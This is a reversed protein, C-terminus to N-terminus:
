QIQWEVGSVTLLFGVDIVAEGDMMWLYNQGTAGNRWLIDSKGDGNFDGTSALRWNLPVTLIYGSGVIYKGNVLWLYNQGTTAHRWLIDSKGDGNFDGTGALRWNLDPVTLLYGSDVIYKGNMLWLYNQGTVAHRWLIDSKGDGNYDGTGALRWTAVSVTLLYGSDIISKGNMLWLYNQGTTAHRWLIDSKGDGNFDGTGTLRWNLDVTLLYGSDVIYKGNMLWLYNQGTVAHRWLIDSKGDGNFDGTGTLRWNLDVTLLYGSDVIYKGNMLWLYNQGTTAYRWLIDSKGDGTFDSDFSTREITVTITEEATLIGDSVTFIVEYVGADGLGPTAQFAGTSGDLSMWAPMGEATYTLVTAPDPDSATLTFELLGGEETTKDGIPDFVPPRIGVLVTVTATDTGGQGDDVTYTFSDVGNWDPMPTYTVQNRVIVVTGLGQIVETVTLLDNEPDSDNALVDIDVPTDKNTSSVDNVAVPADNVPTVTITVTATNSDASGDNAKYTFSDSTTESGDHVYTFSGNANLTLTGHAPNTVKAATLPNGEADTDNGLVGPAVQNLTGGEAVPYGDNVAVPADNVPTVTITVTATNSDASGDNAKYTFSDSTTESGDHVYTFSGNANLTLTGHAPNTVKAATLPNGEADTDNGLVGPAVQNLTGGEAVPYGDNVAVPADNVPTVTITVTATNSDASGDNAKYTFSDSTTESGDHVYTFSGNANLTLTGHAPDTVKAATLPNGEADTDNGLVGPAVQNLTGGEAVPYGDNVAVPADNVPTVTITVTAMNSDASGDNAKYTFSDSATESGDHVYTFSGNANLTLTGHNPDTVKAATLPNGEADTDNGLVGPAVQNLTGGEAVPYGDNVAVPADNVPTVTITVTAMNSDASGDNAKYTFSDSTTESGDHVYTFSGNANLTLTGHAPDTVKAATLPNGEADTDNGLVGPAVQNLTGGEAVPYGDNVAVPADNVPTVTITVTAMNSDASGDNAKYTFSDSATESGDHVYTFSGNANLTLTGHTPGTVKVATLPDGEADTDNGLVGPAVQNLTGGEAVPYGDNVAVPANNVPTVTITVTATNSDASGDNAKYTFSDSTTESGDHVYTFSGNANLTLTGHTPNTVKAATLPNGEADTDNGLVGSAVQNLTGGEAVPYGDNVAVPADNVPTVTITVTAMNSDASGDNAKYTFSDSATESGDHVYTFSGNANLTLTGHAPNTVKAATLPNGEADTDNGLVGPAVQNLTGGEAVPYGDNVAVPANNVPTVTITVTATNSDASGDNAKYTFSDSATESGDHVYTFSGNANLTLTGHAPNTVKAATLPNGEADTDNGLVGPAVQNLTGGEAVPYGDNVAVPADNVPTVTITVTATNSDASGDNAKYTFSDSATESGDHVYTFSGNANLTLTGHAPNTVKAATLPNGEADTDNGLVGPAVQDLTGGEAVPYGDNVAVPADNVDTVTISIAKSLASGGGDATRVLISYGSKTEFDFIAATRLKSGDVAFSANDADGAGPVLSYTFTDGADPDTTSFTGVVTGSPQNEAVTSPALALDTPTRNVNNVTITVIESDTDTGDSVTFTVPHPGAQDYGPTWSFAGSVSDLTAGAPLGEAGFTLTDLDADTASLTFALNVGEDVSRNGIAALVPPTNAVTYALTLQNNAEDAESLQCLPDVFARFTRAGKAPAALGTFTLSVSGGPQMDGPTRTQEGTEGCAAADVHDRWIDVRGVYAPCNGVNSVTVRASFSEGTAPSAPTLEIGTVALEAAGSCYYGATLVYDSDVTVQITRETNGPFIAGDKLWESFIFNSGVSANSPATLTVVTGHAYHRTFATSGGGLAEADAPSVDVLVGSDPLSSEVRLEHTNNSQVTYPLSLQQLGGDSSEITDCYADVYARFTKSAAAGAALGTFEIMKSEGVALTGVNRWADEPYDLNPLCGPNAAQNVWVALTGADGAATGTNTVTVQAKFTLGTTPSTPLVTVNTVVFNPTAYVAKMTINATMLVQVTPASLDPTEAGGTKEWTLFPQGSIAAPATLTVTQGDPYKRSMTPYGGGYADLDAPSVGILPNYGTPYNSAQVTLTRQAVVNYDLTAQNNTEDSEVVDCGEDVFARFTKPGVAGATFGTLPYTDTGGAALPSSVTYRTTAEDCGAEAPHDAWAGLFFDVAEVTGANQVTVNAVFGRSTVPSDPIIDIDIATIQLDPTAYVATLAHDDDVTVVINPDTGIVQGDRQWEVFNRTQGEYLMTPSASLLAHSWEQCDYSFPTSLVEMTCVEACCHSIEAGSAPFSDITLTHMPCAATSGQDVNSM